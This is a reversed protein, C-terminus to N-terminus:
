KANFTNAPFRDETSDLRRCQEVTVERIGEFGRVMDLQTELLPVGKRGQIFRFETTDLISLYNLFNLPPPESSCVDARGIKSFQFHLYVTKIDTKM